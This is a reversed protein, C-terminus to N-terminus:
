KDYQNELLDISLIPELGLREIFSKKISLRPRKGARQQDLFSENRSQNLIMDYLDHDPIQYVNVRGDLEDNPCFDVFILVDWKSRPGFSTLDYKISTAKIQIGEGTELDVCDYSHATNNTRIANFFYSFIGESVVEPINMARGKIYKLNHNLKYWSSFIRKILEYDQDEFLDGFVLSGDIKLHVGIKKM